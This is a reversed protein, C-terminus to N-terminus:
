LLDSACVTEFFSYADEARAIAFVVEKDRSEDLEYFLTHLRSFEEELSECPPCNYRLTVGEVLIISHM